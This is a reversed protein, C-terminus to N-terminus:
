ESLYATRYGQKDIPLTEMEKIYFQRVIRKDKVIGVMPRKHPTDEHYTFDFISLSKYCGGPISIDIKGEKDLDLDIAQYPVKLIRIKYQQPDSARIRLRLNKGMYNTLAITSVPELMKFLIAMGRQTIPIKNSFRLAGLSVLSLVTISVTILLVKVWNRM